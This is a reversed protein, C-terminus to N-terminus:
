KTIISVQIKQYISCSDIKNEIFLYLLNSKKKNLVSISINILVFIAVSSITSVLFFLKYNGSFDYFLNSIPSNVAQGVTFAASTVALTKAFSREGFLDLALIPIMVTVIPCAVALLISHSIALIKGTSNASIILLLANSICSSLLCMNIAIKIGLRDYIIGVLFKCVALGIAVTSLNLAVFSPAFGIDTFHPAIVNGVSILAHLLLCAIIAYFPISGLLIDYDCDAKRPQEKTADTEKTDIEDIDTSSPEKYLTLVLILVVLLVAATIFYAKRYGFPNGDEYIVPTLVSVAVASGIAIFLCYSVPNVM